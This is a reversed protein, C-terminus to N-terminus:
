RPLDPSVHILIDSFKVVRTGSYSVSIEAYFYGSLTFDGSLILYACKGNVADTITMSHSFALVGADQSQVNLTISSGSLNLASGSSDTLTFTLTSGYEGQVLNITKM